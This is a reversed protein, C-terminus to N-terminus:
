KAGKSPVMGGEEVEQVKRKRKLNPNPPLGVLTVLFPPPPRLNTPVQSKPADKTSGGKNRVVLLGKLGKRLNIDM